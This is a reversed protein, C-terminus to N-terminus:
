RACLGNFCCFFCRNVFSYGYKNCIENYQKKENEDGKDICTSVAKSLSLPNVTFITDFAALDFTVHKKGDGYFFRVSKVKTGSQGRLRYRRCNRM